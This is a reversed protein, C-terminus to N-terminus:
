ASLPTDVLALPQQGELYTVERIGLVSRLKDAPV